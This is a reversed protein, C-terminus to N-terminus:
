KKLGRETFMEDELPINYKVETMNMSTQTNDQQNYMTISKATPIGDVMEIDSQILTKLHYDPDKEDYYDIVLPVYNDKQIWIIMRSYSLHSDPNRTLELKY